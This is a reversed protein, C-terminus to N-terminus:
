NNINKEDPLMHILKKRFSEIGANEKCSLEFYTVELADLEILLHPNTGYEIKNVAILFPMQTRRVFEILETECEFLEERADLVIIIFDSSNIAKTAKNLDKGSFNTKDDVVLTKINALSSNSLKIVVNLTENENKKHGKKVGSKQPDFICDILRSKGVHKRGVVVIQLNELKTEM